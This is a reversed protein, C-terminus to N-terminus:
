LKVRARYGAALERHRSPYVSDGVKEYCQAIFDHAAALEIVAKQACATLFLISHACSLLQLEEATGLTQEALYADAHERAIRILNDYEM